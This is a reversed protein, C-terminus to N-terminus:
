LVFYINNNYVTVHTHCTISVRGPDSLDRLFANLLCVVLLEVIIAWSRFM